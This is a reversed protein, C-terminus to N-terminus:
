STGLAVEETAALTAWFAESLRYEVRRGEGMRSEVVGMRHLGALARRTSQYQANTSGYDPFVDAAVVGASVWSDPHRYAATLFDVAGVQVRGPGRSM